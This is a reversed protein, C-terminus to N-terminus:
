ENGMTRAVALSLRDVTSPYNLFVRSIASTCEKPDFAM